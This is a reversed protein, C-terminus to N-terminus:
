EDDEDMIETMSRMERYENWQPDHEAYITLPLVEFEELAHNFRYQFARLSSVYFVWNREGGGTYIGTLVAVADRAFEERLAADVREMLKATADDPMGGNGDITYKWTVEVRDNFRGSEMVSDVGARGTVMVLSGGDGEAPATWWEDGIKLRTM